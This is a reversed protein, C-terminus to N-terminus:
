IKLFIKYRYLVWLVLWCVGAYAASGVLVGWTPPLLDVLGGTLFRSTYGFDVMCQLMYITISNAGIVQFFFAWGSWGKVDIVWYFLAFLLFSFGGTLCVFSSSWLSKNIPMAVHWMGAVSLLLVGICLLTRVVHQNARVLDGAWMGLLATVVAPVTSLLGEPDFVYPVHLHAGFLARDVVGVLNEEYSFDGLGWLLLWYSLLIATCWVKRGVRGTNLYIVAAVAWALGIRGLVSFIRVHDWDFQLLGNYVMGLLVLILARKAIKAYIGERSKAVSFPFSVGAIFLFLPFILDFFRFGNWAVHGMQQALTDSGILGALAVAMAGGGMIWFMDFGRLADLSRLRRNQEMM